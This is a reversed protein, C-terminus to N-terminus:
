AVYIFTVIDQRLAVYKYLAVSSLEDLVFPYM